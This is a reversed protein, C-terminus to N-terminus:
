GVATLYQTLLELEASDLESIPIVKLNDCTSKFDLGKVEVTKQNLVEVVIGRRIISRDAIFVAEVFDGVKVEAKESGSAM